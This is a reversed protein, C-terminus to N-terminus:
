RLLFGCFYAILLNESEEAVPASIEQAHSHSFSPSHVEKDRDPAFASVTRTYLHHGVLSKDLRKPKSTVVGWRSPVTRGPTVRSDHM